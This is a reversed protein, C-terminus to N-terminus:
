IYVSQYAPQSKHSSYALLVHGSPRISQSTLFFVVGQAPIMKPINMMLLQTAADELQNSPVASKSSPSTRSM